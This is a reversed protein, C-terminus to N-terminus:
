MSSLAATKAAEGETIAKFFCSDEGVDTCSVMREYGLGAMLARVYPSVPLKLSVPKHDAVASRHLSCLLQFFSIDVAEVDVIELLLGSSKEYAEVLKEKLARMCHITLSGSFTFVTEEIRKKAM